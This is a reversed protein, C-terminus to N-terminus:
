LLIIMKKTVKWYRINILRRIWSLVLVRQAAGERAVQDGGAGSSKKILIGKAVLVDVAFDRALSFSFFNM